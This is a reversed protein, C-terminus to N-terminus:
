QRIIRGPVGVITACHPVDALVVAGAGVMVDAQLSVGAIISAGMGVWTYEGVCVNGALHAGPSVHVGESLFCDHDITAGTNVIGGRGIHAGYNVAAQAFVVTGGELLAGQSVAAQPHVVIAEVFGRKVLSNLLKMRLRNDGIAVVVHSYEELFSKADDVVGLVPVCAIGSIAPYHDDLFGIRNWQAMLLAADAVVKGHGGAGVILLGKM